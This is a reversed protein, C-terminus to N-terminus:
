AFSVTGTGGSITSVKNEGVTATTVTLGTFTGTLRGNYRLIVIGSGGFGPGPWNV